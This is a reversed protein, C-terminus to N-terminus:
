IASDLAKPQLLQEGTHTRTNTVTHTHTHAPCLPEYMSNFAVEMLDMLTNDDRERVWKGEVSVVM